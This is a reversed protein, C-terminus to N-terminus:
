VFIYTIEDRLNCHIYDNLWAPIITLEHWYLPGSVTHTASYADRWIPICVYNILHAIDVFFVNYSSRSRESIGVAAGHNGMSTLWM